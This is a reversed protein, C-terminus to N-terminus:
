ATQEKRILAEFLRRGRVCTADAKLLVEAPAGGLTTLMGEIERTAVLDELVVENLGALMAQGFEADDRKFTRGVAFFYHATNTTAPTIAHYVRIKGLPAGPEDSGTRSKHFFDYGAHLCPLHLKMGFARDIKGAYDFVKSFLPPCDIDLFERESSIWNEGNDRKEDVSGFDGAGISTQHLFGLHTLDFLNDHMLMYRGPVSHYTGGEVTFDPDTLGIEHHDPILAEDALAPDGMWIWLWKWREVLPFSKVKCSAPIMGQSPIRVCDGTPGFTIGHYMCEINDGVLRSKGLPFHRHPCRGELAVAQGAETRYFAVPENLIWREMPERRVEDAWAAIYWQNRPAFCGEPLPYM